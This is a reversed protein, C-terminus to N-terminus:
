HPGHIMDAEILLDALEAHWAIHEAVIEALELLKAREPDGDPLADAEARWRAVLEPTLYDMFPM